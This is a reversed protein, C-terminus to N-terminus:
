SGFAPASRPSPPVLCLASAPAMRLSRHNLFRPGHHLPMQHLHTQHPPPRLCLPPGMQNCPNLRHDTYSSGEPARIRDDFRPHSALLFTWECKETESIRFTRFIRIKPNGGETIFRPVCSLHIGADRFGREGCSPMEKLFFVSLDAISKSGGFNAAELASIRRALLPYLSMLKSAHLSNFGAPIRAVNEQECWM